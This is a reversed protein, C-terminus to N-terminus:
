ARLLDTVSTKQYTQGTAKKVIVACATTPAAEGNPLTGGPLGGAVVVVGPPVRGTVCNGTARDIIKTSASLNVGSSVVAGRGILVGETISSNAGVFADDEIIVPRAQIPEFVGGITVGASVHVNAGIQACSGITTFSDVSSNRGIRAGWSIFGPMIVADREIHASYRVMAGSLFRFGARRFDDETWGAFKLRDKDWWPAGGPGGAVIEFQNIQGGAHHRADALPPDGM